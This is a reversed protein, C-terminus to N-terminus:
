RKTMEWTMNSDNRYVGDDGHKWTGGAYTGDWSLTGTFEAFYGVGPKNDRDYFMYVYIGDASGEMTGQVTTNTGMDGFFEEDPQVDVIIFGALEVSDIKLTV